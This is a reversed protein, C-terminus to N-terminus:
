QHQHNITKLFFGSILLFILIFIKIILRKNLLDTWTNQEDPTRDQLLVISLILPLFLSKNAFMGLVWIM